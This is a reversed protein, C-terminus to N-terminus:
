EYVKIATCMKGIEFNVVFELRDIRNEECVKKKKFFNQM